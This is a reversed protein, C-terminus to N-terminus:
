KEGVEKQNNQNQVQVQVEEIQKRTLVIQKYQQYTALFDMLSMFLIFPLPILFYWIGSWAMFGFALIMGVMTGIQGVMKNKLMREPGMNKIAEKWRQFKTKENM